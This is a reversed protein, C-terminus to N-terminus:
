EGGGCSQIESIADLNVILSRHIRVFKQPALTKEVDSIKDRWFSMSGWASEFIIQRRKLGNSKLTGCSFM